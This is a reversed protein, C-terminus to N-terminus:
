PGGLGFLGGGVAATAGIRASSVDGVSSLLIDVGSEDEKSLYNFGKREKQKNQSEKASKTTVPKSEKKPPTYRPTKQSRLKKVLEKGSFNVAKQNGIGIIADAGGPIKFNFIDQKDTGFMKATGNKNVKLIANFGGLLYDQKGAPSFQFLVGDTGQVVSKRPIALNKSWNPDYKDLVDLWEKASKPNHKANLSRLTNFQRSSVIDNFSNGAVRTNKKNIFLAQTPAKGVLGGSVGGWADRSMDYILQADVDDFMERALERDFPIEEGFNKDAWPKLKEPAKGMMRGHVINQGLQGHIKRASERMGKVIEDTFGGSEGLARLERYHALEQTVVKRTGSSISVDRYLSRVFDQTTDLMGVAVNRASGVHPNGGYFGPVYNRLNKVFQSVLKGSGLSAIDLSAMAAGGLTPRDTKNLFDGIYDFIGSTYNRPDLWKEPGSEAVNDSTLPEILDYAAGKFTRGPTVPYDDVIARASTEPGAPARTQGLLSLDYEAGFSMPAMRGEDLMRQYDPEEELIGIPPARLPM